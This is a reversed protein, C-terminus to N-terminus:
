FVCRPLRCCFLLSRWIPNTPIYVTFVTGKDVESRCFILGRCEAVSDKVISLGIGDGPQPEGRRERKFRAYMGRQFKKAMGIGTDSVVLRAFGMRSRALSITVSGRQTYKIANETLNVLIEVIDSMRCRVFISEDPVDCVLELGKAAADAEYKVATECVPECLDMRAVPGEDMGTMAAVRRTDADFLRVLSSAEDEMAVIAEVPSKSGNRVMGINRGFAIIRNRTDHFVDRLILRVDGIPRAIFLASALLLPVVIVFSYLPLGPADEYEKLIKVLHMKSLALDDARIAKVTEARLRASREFVRFPVWALMAVAGVFVTRLFVKRFLSKATLRM